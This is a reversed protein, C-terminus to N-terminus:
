ERSKSGVARRGLHYMSCINCRYVELKIGKGSNKIGRRKLRGVLAANAESATAYQLKYTTCKM